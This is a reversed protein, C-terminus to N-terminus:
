TKKTVHNLLFDYGRIWHMLADDGFEKKYDDMENNLPTTKPLTCSVSHLNLLENAIAENNYGYKKGEELIELIKKKM